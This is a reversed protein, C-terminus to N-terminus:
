SNILEKVNKEFAPSVYVVKRLSRKRKKTKKTLIHRHGQRGRKIKGTSTMSFRKKAGSHTKQKPM